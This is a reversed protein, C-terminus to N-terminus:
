VATGVTAELHGSANFFSDRFILTRKLSSHIVVDQKSSESPPCDACRSYQMLTKAIYFFTPTKLLRGAESAPNGLSRHRHGRKMPLTKKKKSLANATAALLLLLNDCTGAKTLSATSDGM